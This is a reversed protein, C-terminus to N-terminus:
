RGLYLQVVSAYVERVAFPLYGNWPTKAPYSYATLGCKKAFGSARYEHYDNTVVTIEDIKVGRSELIELSKRFNELTSSSTDEIILREPDIGKDTLTNFMCRGESIDEGNGRGGSLVAKSGPNETLYDYAANIRKTLFIGPVTSYVRCGLVIIYETKHESKRSKAVINAFAFGSVAVCVALIVATVSLAARGATNKWVLAFLSNVREFFVGYIFFLAAALLGTVLGSNIEGTTLLPSINFIVCLASLVFLIIRVATM